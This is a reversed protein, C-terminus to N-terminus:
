LLDDISFGLKLLNGPQLITKLKAENIAKLMSNAEFIDVQKEKMLKAIEGAKHYGIYPILATTVATSHILANYGSAENVVLGEFLNDNM